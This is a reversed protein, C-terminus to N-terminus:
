RNVGADRELIRSRHSQENGTWGTLSLEVGGSAFRTVAEVTETALYQLNALGFGVLRRHHAARGATAGTLLSRLGTAIAAGVERDMLPIEVGNTWLTQGPHAIAGAIAVVTCYGQQGLAEGALGGVVEAGTTALTVM